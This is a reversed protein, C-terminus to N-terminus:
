IKAIILSIKTYKIPIKNIQVVNYRHDYYNAINPILKEIKYKKFNTSDM